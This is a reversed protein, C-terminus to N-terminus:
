YNPYTSIIITSKMNCSERWRGKLPKASGCDKLRAIAQNLITLTSLALRREESPMRRRFFPSQRPPLFDGKKLLCGGGSSLLNAHHFSLQQAKEPPPHRRLLSLLWYIDCFISIHIFNHINEM